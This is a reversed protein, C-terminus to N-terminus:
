RSGAVSIRSVRAMSMGAITRSPGFASMMNKVPVSPTSIPPGSAITIQLKMLGSVTSPSAHRPKVATAPLQIPPPALWAAIFSTNWISLSTKPLM